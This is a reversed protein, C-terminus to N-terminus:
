KLIKCFDLNIPKYELVSDNEDMLAYNKAFTEIDRDTIDNSEKIKRFHKALAM